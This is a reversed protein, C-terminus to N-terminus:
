HHTKPTKINSLIDSKRRSRKAIQNTKHESQQENFLMGESIGRVIVCRVTVINKKM